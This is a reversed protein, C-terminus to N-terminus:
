FQKAGIDPTVHTFLAGVGKVEADDLCNRPEVGAVKKRRM